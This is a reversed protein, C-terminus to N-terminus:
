DASFKVEETQNASLLAQFIQRLQQVPRGELIIGVEVMRSMGYETLNASGIYAIENDALLVKAHSAMTAYDVDIQQYEYFSFCSILSDEKAREALRRIVRHNIATPNKLLQTIITITVGHKAAALLASELRNFGVQEFFPNLIFIESKAETILRHLSAALSPISHRIDADLSLSDPLTAILQAPRQQGQELQIKKLVHLAVCADHMIERLQEPEIQYQDFDYWRRDRKHNILVGAQTLAFFFTQLYKMHLRGDTVTYVDQVSILGNRNSVSTMADYLLDLLDFTIGPLRALTLVAETQVDNIGTAL